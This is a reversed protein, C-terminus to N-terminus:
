GISHFSVLGDWGVGFWGMVSWGVGGRGWFVM